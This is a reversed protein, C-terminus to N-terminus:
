LTVSKAFNGTQIELSFLILSQAQNATWIDVSSARVGNCVTPIKNIKTCTMHGDRLQFNVADRLSWWAKFLPCWRFYHVIASILSCAEHSDQETQMLQSALISRRSVPWQETTQPRATLFFLPRHHTTQPLTPNFGDRRTPETETFQTRHVDMLLGQGEAKLGRKNQTHKKKKRKEPHDKFQLAVTSKNSLLESLLYRMLWICKELKKMFSSLPFFSLLFFPFCLEHSLTAPKSCTKCVYTHRHKLHWHTWQM